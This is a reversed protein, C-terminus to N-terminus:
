VESTKSTTATAPWTNTRSTTASPISASRAIPVPRTLQQRPIREADLDRRMAQRVEDHTLGARMAWLLLQHDDLPPM